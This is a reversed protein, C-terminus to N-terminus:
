AAIVTRGDLSARFLALVDDGRAPVESIEMTVMKARFADGGAAPVLGGAAGSPWRDEDYLWAGMGEEEAVRVTERVCELWEPGMYITELGDRSHMFFGGMGHAKMDRAQRALEEPDLRDNWSWFPAGRLDLGPNTFEQRLKDM